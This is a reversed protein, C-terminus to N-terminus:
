LMPLLLIYKNIEKGLSIITPTVSQPRSLRDGKQFPHTAYSKDQELIIVTYNKPVVNNVIHRLQNSNSQIRYFTKAM